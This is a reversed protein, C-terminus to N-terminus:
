KIIFNCMIINQVSCRKGANYHNYNKAQHNNMDLSFCTAKLYLYSQALSVNNQINAQLCLFVFEVLHSHINEVNMVVLERRCASAISCAVREIFALLIVNHLYFWNKLFENLM